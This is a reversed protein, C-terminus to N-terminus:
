KGLWSSFRHGKGHFCLRLLHAMLFTGGTAGKMRHCNQRYIRSSNEENVPM